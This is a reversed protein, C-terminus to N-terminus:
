GSGGWNAEQGPKRSQRSSQDSARWVENGRAKLDVQKLGRGTRKETKPGSNFNKISVQVTFVYISVDYIFPDISLNM